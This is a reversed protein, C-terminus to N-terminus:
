QALGVRRVLAMFRPDSRYSDWLPEVNLSIVYHNRDEIARALRALAQEKQGLRAYLLAVNIQLVFEKKEQELLRDLQWRWLGKLGGSAFATKMGAIEDAGAGNVQAQRLYAAIAGQEDGKMEYARIMWNYMQGSNAHLYSGRRAMEIAEDYRHAFYLIQSLSSSVYPSTPDLDEARRAEAIAEELRKM